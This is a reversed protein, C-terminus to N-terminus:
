GNKLWVGGLYGNPNYQSKRGSYGSEVSFTPHFATKFEDTWHTDANARSQPYKNYYGRYDYANDNLIRLYEEEVSLPPVGEKARLENWKSNNEEAVREMITYYDSDSLPGGNASM